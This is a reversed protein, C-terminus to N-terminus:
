KDGLFYPKAFMVIAGVVGLVATYITLNSILHNTLPFAALSAGFVSAQSVQEWMYGFVGSIITAIIIILLYIFMAIPYGGVIWGSILLAFALAIFVGFVVYDFRNTLEKTSEFADVTSQSDNIAETSLLEDLSDNFTGYSVFFALGLTVVVVGLLIIDRM